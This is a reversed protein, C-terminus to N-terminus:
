CVRDLFAGTEHACRELWEPERWLSHHDGGDIEIFTGHDAANAISKGDALPCVTDNTGHIVLLPCTLKRAHEARDFGAWKAGAGSRMGVWAIAPPLNLRWPLNATRLVGQAPTVPVRYPAEAIVGAIDDRGAAVEISMGAGMSAGMLVIPTDNGVRDVLDDLMPTERASLTCRGPAEGTGPLDWVIVRSAHDLLGCVRDLCGVRGQGWGPTLVVVPGTNKFGTIDWVPLELGGSSLM